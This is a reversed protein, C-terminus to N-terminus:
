SIIIVGKKSNEIVFSQGVLDRSAPTIPTKRPSGVSSLSRPATHPIRNEIHRIGTCRRNPLAISVVAWAQKQLVSDRKGM